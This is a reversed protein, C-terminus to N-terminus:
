FLVVEPKYSPAAPQELLCGVERTEGRAKQSMDAVIALMLMHWLLTDDDRLKETTGGGYCGPNRVGRREMSPYTQPRGPLAEFREQEPLQTRHIGRKSGRLPAGCLGTEDEKASASQSARAEVGGTGRCASGEVM